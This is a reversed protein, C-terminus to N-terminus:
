YGDTIQGILRPERAAQPPCTPSPLPQSRVAAPSRNDKTASPWPPSHPPSAYGMVFGEIALVVLDLGNEALELVPSADVGSM